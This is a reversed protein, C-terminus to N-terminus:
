IQKLERMTTAAKLSQVAKNGVLRFKWFRAKFGTPLRFPEDNTIVVTARLIDDAYVYLTLIPTSEAIEGVNYLVSHGVPAKDEAVSTTWAQSANEAIQQFGYPDAYTGATARALPLKGLPCLGIGQSNGAYAAPYNAANVVEESYTALEQLNSVDITSRSYGIVAACSLNVPQDFEFEKSTWDYISPISSAPNWSRVINKNVLIVYGLVTDTLVGDFEWFDDLTIFDAGSGLEPTDPRVTIAFGRPNVNDEDFGLLQEEDKVVTLTTLSFRSQWEEQTMFSHTYNTVGNSSVLILGNQSAYTVGFNMNVISRRNTCPEASLVKSLSLSDPRSGSLIVPGAVTCVVITNGFFGVGVIDFGVAYKYAEPWAHPRYPESCCLEGTNKRFGFLFGSPHVQLGMLDTPPPSWLISEIPDNLAVDSTLFSDGYSAGADIALEVVFHYTTTGMVSTVTRYIRKRDIEYDGAPAANDMNALTWTDDTQGTQTVPDSPPGEEGNVGVLTYVYVRTENVGSSGGSPAAMTPANTPKPIGLLYASTQFSPDSKLNAETIYKPAHSSSSFYIRRLSDNVLPARVMDHDADDSFGWFEAGASDLYYYARTITTVGATSAASKLNKNVTSQRLARLEGSLVEVNVAASAAGTPLLQEGLRPQEGGFKKIAVSPM